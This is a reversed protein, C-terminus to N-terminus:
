CSDRQISASEEDNKEALIMAACLMMFNLFLSFLKLINWLSFFNMELLLPNKEGSTKAEDPCM